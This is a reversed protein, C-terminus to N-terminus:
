AGGARAMRRARLDDLAGAQPKAGKAAAVMLDASQKALTASMMGSMRGGDLQRALTVAMTGTSSGSKGLAELEALVAVENPGPGSPPIPAVAALKAPDQRIPACKYCKERRSGVDRTFREGCVKCAPRRPAVM